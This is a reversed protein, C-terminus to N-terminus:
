DEQFYCNKVPVNKTFYFLRLMSIKRSLDLINKKPKTTQRFYQSSKKIFYCPTDPIIKPATTRNNKEPIKQRPTTRGLRYKGQPHTPATPQTISYRLSILL